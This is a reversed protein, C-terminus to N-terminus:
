DKAAVVEGEILKPANVGLLDNASVGLAAAARKIREILADGTGDTHHVAVTHQTQAPLGGRDMLAIAANLQKPHDDNKAIRLAVALGLLPGITHATARAVEQAAAAVRPNHACLHGAVKAREKHDSYGADRAWQTPTGLPNSAMQLVYARQKDSLSRWAPGYDGDPLEM